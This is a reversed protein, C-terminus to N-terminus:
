SGHVKKLRAQTKADCIGTVKGSGDRINQDAQFEEIASKFILDDEPADLPGAAYGLNNLRGIQGTTTSEPDLHGIRVSIDLERVILRGKEATRDIDREIMGSANTTDTKPTGEVESLCEDGVFSRDFYDKFVVRLKLQQLKIQFTHRKTTPRDVTKVEKEPITVVDGPNLVNLNDRKAKLEANAGDDWITHFDYFGYQVALKCIHDGQKVTHPPM